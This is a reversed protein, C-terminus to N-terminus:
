IANIFHSMILLNLFIFNCNGSPMPSQVPGTNQGLSGAYSNDQVTMASQNPPYQSHPPYPAQPSPLPVSQQPSSHSVGQQPSAHPLSQQPSTQTLGQQPSTLPSSQPIGAQLSVLPVSQPRAQLPAPQQSTLPSAPPIGPQSSPVYASQSAPQPGTNTLGSSKFSDQSGDSHYRFLFCIWILM